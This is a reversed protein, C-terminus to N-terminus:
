KKNRTEDSFTYRKHTHGSHPLWCGNGQTYPWKRCLSVWGVVLWGISQNYLLGSCSCDSPLRKCFEAWGMLIPGHSHFNASLWKRTRRLILTWDRVWYKIRNIRQHQHKLYVAILDTCGSFNSWIVLHNVFEIMWWCNESVPPNSAQVAAQQWLLPIFGQHETYILGWRRKVAVSIYQKTYINTGVEVSICQTEGGSICWVRRQSPLHCM